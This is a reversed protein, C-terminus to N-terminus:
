WTRFKDRGSYFGRDFFPMWEDRFRNVAGNEEQHFEIICGGVMAQLKKKRMFPTQDEVCGTQIVHVERPYGREFKHYHGFLAIHPKEGGQYSEVIKQTAYSIAYATGGGPHTVRLWTQGKKAKLYIDREMHGIWKLDKRGSRDAADQMVQGINIGERQNFWGEHDDGTIFWTEIGKRVPYENLWYEIQSDIGSRVLLEHRNFRCEGDIMNGTHLVTTIGERDYIDYLTKLVDLRAARNCLHTDGMAGFRMWKGNWFRASDIVLPRSVPVASVLSVENEQVHVNYGLVKLTEVLKRGRGPAINLKDCFELFDWTKGLLIRRAKRELETSETKLASKAAEMLRSAKM